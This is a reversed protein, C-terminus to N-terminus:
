ICLSPPRKLTLAGQSPVVMRGAAGRPNDSQGVIKMAVLVDYTMNHLLFEASQRHEPQTLGPAM